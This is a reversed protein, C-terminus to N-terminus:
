KWGAEQFKIYQIAMEIITRMQEEGEVLSDSELVNGRLVLKQCLSMLAHTISFYFQEEKLDQRITGDKKGSELAELMVAKLSVIEREYYEMKEKPVNERIVYNDFEYLFRVFDQHERYLKIFVELIEKVKTLGQKQRFAGDTYYGYFESIEETWFRTAAEIVLEPKTKFYRYVSAVGIEAKEAVDTMKSNEIGKQKFVKAAAEIVKEKRQEVLKDVENKRKERLDM